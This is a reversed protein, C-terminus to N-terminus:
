YYRNISNVTSQFIANMGFAPPGGSNPDMRIRIRMMPQITNLTVEM